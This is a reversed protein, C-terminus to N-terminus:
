YIEQGSIYSLTTTGSITPVMRCLAGAPIVAMITGVQTNVLNLVIALTVTNSNTVTGVTTWTSGANTSYQLALSGSSASGISATCSISINYILTAQLTTSPTFTTSNVARTVTHITPIYNVTLFGSPNGTLPYADIIGYGVLTTPKGTLSSFTQAPVSSIFGSPNGSLPYADTIGYGSLTTPKSTLSTFSQAPVSSIYGSPNSNSYPTFGLATVVQTLTIGTLYNTNNTWQSINGSKNTLLNISNATIFGQAGWNGWSFANNWNIILTNTIGFAPSITFIPDVETHLFTSYSWLRIIADSDSLATMTIKNCTDVYQKVAKSTPISNNSNMALEASDTSVSTISKGSLILNDAVVNGGQASTFEVPQRSVFILVILIYYLKM